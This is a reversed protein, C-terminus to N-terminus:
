RSSVAFFSDYRWDIPHEFGISCKPCTGEIKMLPGVTNEDIERTLGELDRKSMEDLESGILRFEGPEDNVGVMCAEVTRPRALSRNSAARSELGRLISGWRPAVYRIAEVDKGRAKFPDRLAYKRELDKPDNCSIVEISGLSGVFRFDHGQQCRCQLALEDGITDRRLWIFMYLVDGMFLRSLIFEREARKKEDVPPEPWEHPGLSSLMYSLILNVLSGPSENAKRRKGIEKEDKTKWPRSSFGRVIGEPAQIGVPLCAGLEALTTKNIAAEM